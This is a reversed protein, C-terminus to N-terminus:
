QSTESYLKRTICDFLKRRINRLTSYIGDPTRGLREATEKATRSEGYFYNLVDQQKKPLQEMCALLAEQRAGREEPRTCSRVSALRIQSEESFQRIYRSRQDQFRLSAYRAVACAWHYFSTGPEYQDFKEWLTLCVEQMVDHAAERDRVLAHIYGLLELHCSNFLGSFQDKKSETTM